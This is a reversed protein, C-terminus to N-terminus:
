DFGREDCKRRRHPHERQWLQTPRDQERDPSRHHQPNRGFGISKSTHLQRDLRGTRSLQDTANQDLSVLDTGGSDITVNYTNGGGNNPVGNPNWDSSTSWNGTGGNWSSNVTGPILYRGSAAPSHGAGDSPGDGPHLADLANNITRAGRRAPPALTAGWDLSVAQPPKQRDKQDDQAHTSPPHFCLAAVAALLLLPLPNRRLTRETQNLLTFRM